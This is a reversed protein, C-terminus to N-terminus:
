PDQSASMSIPVPPRLQVAETLPAAQWQAQHVGSKEAPAEEMQRAVEDDKATIKVLEKRDIDEGLQRLEKSYTSLVGQRLADFHDCGALALVLFGILKARRGAM